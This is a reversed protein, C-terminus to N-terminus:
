SKEPQTTTVDLANSARTYEAWLKDIFSLLFGCDHHCNMWAPNEQTPRANRHARRIQDLRALDDDFSREAIPPAM